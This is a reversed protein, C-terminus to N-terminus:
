RVLKIVKLRQGVFIKNSKLNNMRKLQRVSIRYRKAIKILSDGERVIHYIYRRKIKKRLLKRLYQVNIRSLKARKIRVKKYIVLKQGPYIYRNKYLRNWRKLSKVSVRFRKAISILSDGPKVIYILGKSTYIIDETLDITGKAYEPYAKIVTPVKLVMGVRLIGKTRNIRKLKEETIGFKYAISKFTDGKKVEYDKLASYNVLPLKELASKVTDKYGKPLYINYVGPFPPTKGKKLHPNMKRLQNYSIGTIESILKLSVPKDIKLIDFTQANYDFHERELIDKIVAVSALFNPVYNRTEKSLYNRIDWFNKGGYLRIRRIIAGEGSNYSAIALMWDDFISYLDKLFKAAAITSKEVDYREDIWKNIKLGYTRGTQPMFQWLGAAGAPSKVRINFHSEIIPLFILEDPIGNEEFIEKILPIYKKGRNIFAKLNQYGRTKLIRIREKIDTREAIDMNLSLNIKTKLNEIESIEKSSDLVVSVVIGIDEPNIVDPSYEYDSSFSKVPIFIFALLGFLYVRIKLMARKDKPSYTNNHKYLMVM